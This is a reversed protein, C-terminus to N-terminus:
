TAISNQCIECKYNVPDSTYPHVKKCMLCGVLDKVKEDGDFIYIYLIYVFTQWMQFKVKTEQM